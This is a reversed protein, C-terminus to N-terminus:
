AKLVDSYSLIILLLFVHYVYCVNVVGHTIDHVENPFTHSVYMGSYSM